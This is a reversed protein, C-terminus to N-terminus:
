VNAAGIATLVAERQNGSIKDWNPIQLLDEGAVMKKFETRDIRIRAAITAIPGAFYSKVSSSAFAEQVVGELHLREVNAAGAMPEALRIGAREVAYERLVDLLNSRVYKLASPWLMATPVQIEEINRPASTETDYIAFTVQSPSVRLGITIM